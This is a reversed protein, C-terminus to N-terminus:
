KYPIGELRLLAAKREVGGAYGTLTGNAGLVRHCPIILAIPNRAVAGGVAQASMRAAGRRQAIQAAIEGYTVTEGYPIRRLLEWVERQFPTGVARVPPAFNPAKGSFYEDLWRRVEDFVPLPRPPPTEVFHSARGSWGELWLGTLREGDATFRVEGLPSPCAAAYEM